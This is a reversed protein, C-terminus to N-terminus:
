PEAADPNVPELAYLSLTDRVRGAEYGAAAGRGIYLDARVPGKIASGVDLAMAMRQYTSPVAPNPSQADIWYLGGLPRWAPDVALSRGPALPVGASGAPEAGDDAAVKFFVYRPDAQMIADAEPGRHVALWDHIADASLNDPGLDGRQRLINAIAVFPRGNSASYSARLRRGDPLTLVGSGQIQLFFLDEPRMWALVPGMDQAEIAARDPYPLIQGGVLRLSIKRGALSPDFGGLDLAVLDDPKARLPATFAGGRSARAEYDPAFYATLLGRGAIPRARFNAELFLRAHDEGAYGLARARRCAGALDAARAAGCTRQFAALAQAHDERMWGPLDSLALVGPAPQAPPRYQAVPPAPPPPAPPPLSESACAALILSAAALSLVLGAKRAPSRIPPM